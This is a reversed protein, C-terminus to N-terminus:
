KSSPKKPKALGMTPISNGGTNPFRSAERRIDKDKGITKRDYQAARDAKDSATVHVCGAVAIMAILM